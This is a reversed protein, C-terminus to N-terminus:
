EDGVETEIESLAKRQKKRKYRNSPMDVDILKVFEPEKIKFDALSNKLIASFYRIRAYESVFEKGM